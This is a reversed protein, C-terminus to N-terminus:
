KPRFDSDYHQEEAKKRAKAAEELTRFQGLQKQKKNINIYARYYGTPLLCVGRVGIRNTGRISTNMQQQAATALRLNEWRNDVSNRNKHDIEQQPWKGTKLYWCVHHEFIHVRGFISHTFCLKRYQAGTKPNTLIYGARDWQHIKPGRRPPDKWLVYGTEPDYLLHQDLWILVSNTQPKPLPM